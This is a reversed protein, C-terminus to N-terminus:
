FRAVVAFREQLRGLMPYYAPVDEIGLAHLMNDSYLAGEGSPQTARRLWWFKKSGLGHGTGNTTAALQLLVLAALGFRVIDDSIHDAHDTPLAFLEKLPGKVLGAKVDLLSMTRKQVHRLISGAVCLIIGQQTQVKVHKLNRLLRPKLLLSLTLVGPM